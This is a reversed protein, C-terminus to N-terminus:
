QQQHAPSQTRAGLFAVRIMCPTELEMKLCVPLVKKGNYFLRAPSAAHNSPGVLPNPQTYRRCPEPQYGAANEDRAREEAASTPQGFVGPFPKSGVSEIRPPLKRARALFCPRPGITRLRDASPDSPAYLRPPAHFPPKKHRLPRSLGKNECGHQCVPSPTAHAERPFSPARHEVRM